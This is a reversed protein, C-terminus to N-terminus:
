AQVMKLFEFATEAGDGLRMALLRGARWGVSLSVQGKVKHGSGVAHVVPLVPPWRAPWPSPPAIRRWLLHALQM